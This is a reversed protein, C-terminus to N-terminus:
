KKRKFENRPNMREDSMSSLRVKTLGGLSKDKKNKDNNDKNPRKPGKPPTPPTPPSGAAATKPKPKDKKKTEVYMPKHRKPLGIGRDSDSLGLKREPQSAFQGM